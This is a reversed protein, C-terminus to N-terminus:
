EICAHNQKGLYELSYNATLLLFIFHWVRNVQVRVQLVQLQGLRYLAVQQHDLPQLRVQRPLSGVVGPFQRFRLVQRPQIVYDALYSRLTYAGHLFSDQSVKM